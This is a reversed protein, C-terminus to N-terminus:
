KNDHNKNQEEKKIVGQGYYLERIRRRSFINKFDIFNYAQFNQFNRNALSIHEVDSLILDGEM